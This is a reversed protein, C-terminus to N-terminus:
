QSTRWRERKREREREKHLFCLLLSVFKLQTNPIPHHLARQTTQQKYLNFGLSTCSWSHLPPSTQQTKINFLHSFYYYYFPNKKLFFFFFFFFLTLSLYTTSILSAKNFGDRIEPGQESRYSFNYHNTYLQSPEYIWQFSRM